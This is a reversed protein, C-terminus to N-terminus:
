PHGAKKRKAAMHLAFAGIGGILGAAILDIGPMWLHFLPGLVLGAAMAAHSAFERASGWLSLLFYMPTLFFLAAAALAPLQPALLYIAALISNAGAVLTLGLGCYWTTRWPRPVERFKDLSIVWSTVAIFHSLAYLVWGRTGQARMEPVLVVVMPMLRVSSLAVGLAAAPLSAGAFMAGILIIEAPLAWIVTNMYLTQTLSLGAERTIAGFGIFAGFLLFGPLTFAQRSGRVFWRWAPDSGASEQGTQAVVSEM